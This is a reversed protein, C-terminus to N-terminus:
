SYIIVRGPKVVVISNANIRIVRKTRGRYNRHDRHKANAMALSQQSFRSIQNPINGPRLNPILRVMNQYANKAVRVAQRAQARAQDVNPTESNLLKGALAGGVGPMYVNAAM